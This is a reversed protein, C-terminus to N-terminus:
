IADNEKKNELVNADVVILLDNGPRKLVYDNKTCKWLTHIHVMLENSLNCM